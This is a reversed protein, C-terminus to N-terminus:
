EEIAAEIARDVISNAAEGIEVGVEIGYALLTAAGASVTEAATKLMGDGPRKRKASYPSRSRSSASAPTLSGNEKNTTKEHQAAPAAVDVEGESSGPYLAENVRKGIAAWNPPAYYGEERERPVREDDFIVVITKDDDLLESPYKEFFDVAQREVEEINEADGPQPHLFMKAMSKDVPSDSFKTLVPPMLNELIGDTCLLVTSIGDLMGFEWKEEGFCLPYVRGEADRQMTTVPVYTGDERCAIAGSDGSQGYWLRDGDFVTMCLTCDFQNVPESMDAAAREVEGYAKWFAAKLLRIVDDPESCKHLEEKVFGVATKAAVSSGVDSRTESGLGDAVAAVVVEGALNEVECSDQCTVGKKIHWPGAMNVRYSYLM